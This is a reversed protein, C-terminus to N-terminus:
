FEHLEGSRAKVLAVSRPMAASSQRQHRAGMVECKGAFIAEAALSINVQEWSM